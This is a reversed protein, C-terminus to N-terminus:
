IGGLFKNMIDNLLIWEEKKKYLYEKGIHSIKYYKRRGGGSESDDWYCELYNNKELRKLSLYLTGEKIEFTENSIERVKKVLEYGYMPIEKLLSILITDICGKLVEKNIEM